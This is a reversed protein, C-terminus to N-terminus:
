VKQKNDNIHAAILRHIVFAMSREEDITIQSLYELEQDTVFTVLRNSRADQSPLRPRGLQKQPKKKEKREREMLPNGHDAEGALAFQWRFPITKVPLTWEKYVTGAIPFM